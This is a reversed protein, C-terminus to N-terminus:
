NGGCGGCDFGQRSIGNPGNDSGCYHCFDNHNNKPAAWARWSGSRALMRGNGSFVQTYTCKFLSAHIVGGDELITPTHYITHAIDGAEVGAVMDQVVLWGKPNSVATGRRMSSDLVKGNFSIM